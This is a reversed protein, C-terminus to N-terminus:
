PKQAPPSEARRRWDAWDEPTDLDTIAHTGPLLILRTPHCKLLSRAGEDGALRALDPVLLAPLIVPHGPQGTASAGRLIIDPTERHAAALDALDLATLDPMDGPLIMLATRVPAARRLSASMGTAADPVPIQAVPLGHLVAARKPDPDRLTILVHASLTLALSAQHRLMPVGHVLELLKDGGRMRTASGAAPILITIYPM